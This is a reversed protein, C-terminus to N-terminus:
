NLSPVIIKKLKITGEKKIFFMKTIIIMTNKIFVVLACGL